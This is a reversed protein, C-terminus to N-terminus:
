AFALVEKEEACQVLYLNILNQYPSASQSSGLAACVLEYTSLSLQGLPEDRM